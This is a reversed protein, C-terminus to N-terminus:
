KSPRFCLIRLKYWAKLCYKIWRENQIIRIFCLLLKNRQLFEDADACDRKRLCFYNWIRGVIEHLNAICRTAAEETPVVIAFDIRKNATRAIWRQAPHAVIRRNVFHRSRTIRRRCLSAEDRWPDDLIILKPHTVTALLEGKNGGRRGVGSSADNIVVRRPPDDSRKACNALQRTLFGRSLICGCARATTRVKCSIPCTSRSETM